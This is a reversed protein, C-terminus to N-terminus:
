DHSIDGLSKILWNASRTRLKGIKEDVDNYDISKNIVTEPDTDASIIRESLCLPDLLSDLRSNTSASHKESFRRFSFFKKHFLLSFVTGHFSDTCVYSANEILSVFESPGVDFLEEDAYSVDGKIYDELHILSVIKLGTINQLAKAWKRHKPNEGLFYCFIYEGDTIKKTDLLQKWEGLNFLLTPDCVVEPYEGIINNVIDGGSKERVSISDFERLFASAKKISSRDLKSVGFSTAYSIKKVGEPVFSLTYYDAYINSPLWLQDSGVIVADANLKLCLESLRDFPYAETLRFKESSFRNMAKNRLSINNPLDKKNKIRLKFTYRKLQAAFADTKAINKIYYRIKVGNMYKRMGDFNITYNEVGINDLFAQTAYAQLKSGYNQQYYCSAILVM